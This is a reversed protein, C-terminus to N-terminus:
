EKFFIESFKELVKGEVIKDQALFLFLIFVLYVGAIILFGLPYSGLADGIAIAGALSCFFLVMLFCIFILTFKLIMATSKMTVKFMWLKYYALSKEIYAKTHEQIKETNEKIEELAM